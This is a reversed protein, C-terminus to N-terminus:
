RRPPARKRKAVTARHRLDDAVGHVAVEGPNAQPKRAAPHDIRV